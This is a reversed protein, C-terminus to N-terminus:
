RNLEATLRQLLRIGKNLGQSPEPTSNDKGNLFANMQDLAVTDDITRGSLYLSIIVGNIHYNLVQLHEYYGLDAHGPEVRAHAIGESLKALRLHAAKRALKISLQDQQLILAQLFDRNAAVAAIALESIEARVWVPFILLGTFSLACGALSYLLRATVILPPGGHYLSLCLVVCITIGAVSFSYRPRNWVFFAFLSVASVILLLTTSFIVWLLIGSICLGVITGGLRELNRQWTLALRPRAVIVITLLLWYSYPDKAFFYIGAYAVAFLVSLRIAFRLVPSHLTLHSRLPPLTPRFADMEPPATADLQQIAQTNILVSHIVPENYKALRERLSDTPSGDALARILQTMLPLAGTDALLERIEAYDYHMATVQEYLGIVRVAELALEPAQGKTPLLQRVLEQKEWVRIHLAITKQYAAELPVSPDYHDAKARLFEATATRAEVLAQRLSRFPWIWVQLLSVLEFWICGLLIALAFQLPEGPRLGLLFVILAIGM